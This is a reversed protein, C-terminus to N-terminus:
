HSSPAPSADAAIYEPYAMLFEGLEDDSAADFLHRTADTIMEGGGKGIGAFTGDNTKLSILDAAAIAKLGFLFDDVPVGHTDLKLSEGAEALVAALRAPSALVGSSTAQRAMARLLQQQHRQRDYDGNPLGYRQRAYDLAEWGAMDRCGAEHVWNNWRPRSGERGVDYVQQGHRGVSYHSSWTDQEVCMRVSGVADIVNRFGAFDIVAVGDFTLGTLDAVAATALRAGGTWGRGQGSGYAYAANVRTTAGQFDLEEDAPIQAVTDRPISILYAQDHSAAIHLVIITDSRSAQGTEDWGERTDLGLMLLNIAGRPLRGSGGPPDGSDTLVTTTTQIGATLRGLFYHAGALGGFGVVSLLLGVAVAV